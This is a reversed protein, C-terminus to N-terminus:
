NSHSYFKIPYIANVLFKYGIMKIWLFHKERKDVASDIGKIM